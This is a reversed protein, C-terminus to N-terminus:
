VAERYKDPVAAIFKSRMNGKEKFYSLAMIPIIFIAAFVTTGIFTIAETMNTMIGGGSTLIYQIFNITNLNRTLMSM